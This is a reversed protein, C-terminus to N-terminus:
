ICSLNHEHTDHSEISAQTLVLDGGAFTVKTNWLASWGTCMGCVSADSTEQAILQSLVLCDAGAYVEAVMGAVAPHGQKCMM